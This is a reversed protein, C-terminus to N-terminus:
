HSFYCRKSTELQPVDVDLDMINSYFWSIIILFFFSYSFKQGMIIWSSLGGGEGGGGLLVM